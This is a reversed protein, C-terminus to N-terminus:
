ARWVYEGHPTRASLWVFDFQGGHPTFNFPERVRVHARPRQTPHPTTSSTGAPTRQRAQGARDQRTRQADAPGPRGQDRSLATMDKPHTSKKIEDPVGCTRHVGMPRVHPSGSSIPNVGMPTSNFPEHRTCSLTAPADDEWYGIMEMKEIHVADWFQWLAHSEASNRRTTAYLMGKVNDSKGGSLRDATIGHILGSM